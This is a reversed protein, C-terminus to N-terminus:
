FIYIFKLVAKYADDASFTSTNFYDGVKAYSYVGVISMNADMTYKLQANYETGIQKGSRTAVNQKDASAWGIVAKANIKPTLNYDFAGYALQVGDGNNNVDTVLFTANSIQDTNGILLVLDTALLPITQHGQYQDATVFGRYTTNDTAAAEKGPVYLGNLRLNGNGIKVDVKANAAFASIDADGTATALSTGISKFKGFNYAGMLFYSVNGAKGGYNLGAYYVNATDYNAATTSTPSLGVPNPRRGQANGAALTQYSSGDMITYLFASATGSGLQQKVTIPIFYVADSKQNSLNWWVFAGTSLSSAKSIAYDARFGAIDGGGMFIGAMDDVWTMTGARVTLNSMPKFWMNSNKVEINVSDTGQGGGTGNRAVEFAGQGWYSDVEVAFYAGVNENSKINFYMRMRQDVVNNSLSPTKATLYPPIAGSTAGFNNAEPTLRFHGSMTLTTEASAIGVMFFLAVVVLLLKKM